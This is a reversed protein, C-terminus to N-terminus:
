RWKKERSVWREGSRGCMIGRERGGDKGKEGNGKGGEEREGEGEDRM